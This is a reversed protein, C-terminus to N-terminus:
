KDQVFLKPPKGAFPSSIVWESWPLLVSPLPYQLLGKCCYYFIFLFGQMSIIASTWFFDPSCPRLIIYFTSSAKKYFINKKKCQCDCLLLFFCAFCFYLLFSILCFALEVFFIPRIYDVVCFLFIFLYLFVFVFLLCFHFM